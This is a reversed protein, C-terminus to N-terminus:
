AKRGVGALTFARWPENVFLDDPREPRWRPTFVLGPEVLDLGEFFREIEAYSRSTAKSAKGFLGRLNKREEVNVDSSSHAVCLYSGPALSDRLISMAEYAEGDDEVYHLVTVALLGVPRGFDLLDTVDPHALIADPERIDALLATAQNNDELLSLSHRVAIPDIDVYVVRAAPNASQAVQHVNGVTPIGSGLDLFQEIGQGALFRVARRLFARNVQAAVGLDPNVQLMRDAVARDVEFNHFGGLLYDYIRAASPREMLEPQLGSEEVEM